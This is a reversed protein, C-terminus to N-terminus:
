GMLAKCELGRELMEEILLSQDEEDKCTIVVLYEGEGPTKQKPDKKKDEKDNEGLLDMVEAIDFGMGDLADDVDVVEALM